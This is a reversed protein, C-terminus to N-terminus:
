ELTCFVDNVCDIESQTMKDETTEEDTIEYDVTGADAPVLVIEAYDTGLAAALASQQQALLLFRKRKKPIPM